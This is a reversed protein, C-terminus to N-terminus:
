SALLNTINEAGTIVNGRENRDRAEVEHHATNLIPDCVVDYSHQLLRLLLREDHVYTHTGKAWDESDAERAADEIPDAAIM